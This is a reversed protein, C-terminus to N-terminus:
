QDNPTGSRLPELADKDAQHQVASIYFYSPECKSINLQVNVPAPLQRLERWAKWCQSLYGVGNSADICAYCGLQLQRAILFYARHTKGYHVCPLCHVM